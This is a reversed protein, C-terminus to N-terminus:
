KTLWSLRKVKGTLFSAGVIPDIEIQNYNQYAFTNVYVM